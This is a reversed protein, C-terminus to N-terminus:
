KQSAEDAREQAAAEVAVLRLLENKDNYDNQGGQQM